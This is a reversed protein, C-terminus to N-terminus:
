RRRRVKLTTAARKTRNSGRSDHATVAVVAKLTRTKLLLRLPRRSLKFRVTKTTGPRLASFRFRAFTQIRRNAAARLAIKRASRISGRGACTGQALAPCAVKLSGRGKRDLWLTRAAVLRVGAFPPSTVTPPQPAATPPVYRAFAVASGPNDSVAYLSTGNPAIALGAPRLIGPAQGRTSGAVADCTTTGTNALCGDFTLAGAADRKFSAVLSSGFDTTYVNVGDPSVALGKSRGGLASGHTGGSVADCTAFGAPAICGDSAIRSPTAGGGDRKFAALATQGSVYVNKGDPAVTVDAPNGLGPAQGQTSGSAADCTTNGTNALCGDSTLRGPTSGGQDRVFVALGASANAVYVSAGDRSIAVGDPVSLGPAQGHTSGSVADCTTAGANALCGDSTLRGSAPGGADIKLAAITHSSIGAVYLNAGDGSVAVGWPGDLGPAQGHTTGGVADCTPTGTNAVCGESTLHGLAAGSTDRRFVAVADSNFGAVYVHGGDPSVAVGGEGGSGQAIGPASAPCPNAGLSADGICTVYALSGDPQIAFQVLTSTSTADYASRGDPSVAIHDLLGGGGNLGPQSVCGTVGTTSFCNLPTLEGLTQASAATPLLLAAAAALTAARPTISSLIRM